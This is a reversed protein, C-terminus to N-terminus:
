ICNFKVLFSQTYGNKILWKEECYVIRYYLQSDMGCLLLLLFLCTEFVEAVAKKTKLDNEHLLDGVAEVLEVQRLGWPESLRNYIFHMLVLEAFFTCVHANDGFNLLSLHLRICLLIIDCSCDM